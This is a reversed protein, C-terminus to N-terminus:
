DQTLLDTYDGHKHRLSAVTNRALTLEGDQHKYQKHQWKSVLVHDKLHDVALFVGVAIVLSGVAVLATFWNSALWTACGVSLMIVATFLQMTSIVFGDVSNDSM